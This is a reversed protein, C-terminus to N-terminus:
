HGPGTSASPYYGPYIARAGAIDGAQPTYCACGDDAGPYMLEDGEGTSDNTHLAHGLLEAHGTEHAVTDRM